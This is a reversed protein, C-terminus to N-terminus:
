QLPKTLIGYCPSYETLQDSDLIIIIPAGMSWASLATALVAKADSGTTIFWRSGTWVGDTSVANIFVTDAVPTYVGAYTITANYWTYEAQAPGAVTVLFAIFALIPIVKKM